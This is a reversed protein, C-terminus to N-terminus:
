LHLRCRYLLVLYPEDVIAVRRRGNNALQVLRM